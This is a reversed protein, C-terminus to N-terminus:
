GSDVTGRRGGGLGLLRRPAARVDKVLERWEGEVELFDEQGTSRGASAIERGVALMMGMLAGLALGLIAKYVLLRRDPRVPPLPPEVISIVPIDRVERLRVQEYAQALSSVVGERLAVAQRFDDRQMQLLPSDRLARNTELFSVLVAKAAELSDRAVKLREELFRRENTARSQRADINFANVEDVISRVIHTSVEPWRTKASITVLGSQRSTAVSVIEDRLVRAAEDEPSADRYPSVDLIEPLGRKDGLTIPAEAVATLISRSLILDRYFEPSDNPDQNPVVVGIQGALTALAEAAQNDSEAVFAARATWSRPLLLTVTATLVLGALATLVILNRSRLLFGMVQFLTLSPPPPGGPVPDSPIYAIESVRGEERHTM